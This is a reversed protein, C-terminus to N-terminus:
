AKTKKGTKKKKKISKHTGTNQNFPQIMEREREREYMYEYININSIWTNRM